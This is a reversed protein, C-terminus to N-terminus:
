KGTKRVDLVEFNLRMHSRRIYKESESHKDIDLYATTKKLM